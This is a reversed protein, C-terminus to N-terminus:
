NDNWRITIHDTNVDQWTNGRYPAQPQACPCNPGCGCGQKYVNQKGACDCSYMPPPPYIGHWMTPVYIPAGCQPCAGIQTWM